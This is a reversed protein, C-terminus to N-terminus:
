FPRDYCWIHSQRRDIKWASCTRNYRHIPLSILCEADMGRLMAMGINITAQQLMLLYVVSFSSIYRVQRSIVEPSLPTLKSTNIEVKQVTEELEDVEEADSEDEEHRKPHSESAM